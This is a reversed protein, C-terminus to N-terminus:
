VSKAPPNQSTVRWASRVVITRSGDSRQASMSGAPSLWRAMVVM